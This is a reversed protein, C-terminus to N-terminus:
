FHVIFPQFTIESFLQADSGFGIDASDTKQVSVQICTVPFLAKGPHGQPVPIIILVMEDFFEPLM